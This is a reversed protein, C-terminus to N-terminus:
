KWKKFFYILYLVVSFFKVFYEFFIKLYSVFVNLLYIFNVIDNWLMKEFM